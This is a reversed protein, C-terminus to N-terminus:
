KSEAPINRCRTSRAMFGYSSEQHPLCFIPVFGPCVPFMWMDPRQNGKEFVVIHELIEIRVVADILFAECRSPGIGPIVCPKGKQLLSEAIDVPVDERDVRFKGFAPMLDYTASDPHLGGGPQM